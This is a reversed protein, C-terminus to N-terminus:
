ASLFLIIGRNRKELLDSIENCYGVKNGYCGGLYYVYINSSDEEGRCLKIYEQVDIIDGEELIQYLFSPPTSTSSQVTAHEISNNVANRV